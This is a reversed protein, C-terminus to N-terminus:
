LTQTRVRRAYESPTIGFRERFRKTFYSPSNFGVDYAVHSVSGAQADLLQKARSLRITLIFETPTQGTLDKLKRQLQRKEFHMEQAFTDIDLVEDIHKEVVSRAESIFRDDESHVSVERAQLLLERRYREQLLRRVAILNAVRALLEQANFPKYLYDDVRALLGEIKSEESAKATLMIVPIHNLAKDSKVHRCFTHGDMRPMMVDTIILDPMLARAKELGAVGDEAEAVRYTADLCGRVYTRVDAHDEVILVMPKDIMTSPESEDTGAAVHGAEEEMEWGREDVWDVIKTEGEEIDEAGGELIGKEGSFPIRVIFASGFGVESEVRITGGHLEVLEKTLALGIGTGGQVRTPSDDVQHFRDFIATHQEEPIGVGSDKVRIEVWGADDDSAPLTSVTVRVTGPSPTFKIANSLLNAVVKELKDADFSFHIDKIAAGFQLALQKREAYSSFAHVIGKLFPVVNGHRAHLPMRGAELKSLDLLQNILRLLHRASRRMLALQARVPKEVAGYAGGLINELPGLTLTLPTRFEHSINAFFRSKTRDLEELQHAQKELAQYATELEKAKELELEKRENDAQLYNAWAEAADTRLEKELLFTREREKKIVQARQLRAATVIGAILLLAYVAYAWGTRWWPPHITIRLSAGEENWIGDNNSGKVRFVYDGPDLNTYTVLRRTGAEIWDDDFGELMYAYQHKSPNAYDLAAYEFSLYKDAYSLTIEPVGATGLAVTEDLKRVATIVVPPVHLNLRISDPFFANLGNIGGFFLEGRRSKHYARRNFEQSQLGDSVDYNRFTETEPDFQSLGQNTSLWLRGDDDELIGYIVANPLGDAIGYQRFVAPADPTQGPGAVLKNLGRQTGIWLTGAKDAYISLIDNDSLSGPDGPVHRYRVFTETERDFRNLGDRTGVWLAGSRDEGIARVQNHSLNRPNNSNEPDHGYRTIRNTAPDIRALGRNAGIWLTGEHDEYIRWISRWPRTDEAAPLYPTFAARARDFQYLGLGGTGIWLVGQADEYISRVSYHWLSDIGEVYHTFRNAARDFRTLGGHWTGVWLVGARDEFISHVSYDNLSNADNPDHRYLAFRGRGRHYKNLGGGYTGIWLVGSRDEYISTVRNSSLSRPDDRRHTYHAFAGTARDFRNLGGGETGVWLVGARDEYVSQVYDNSLSSADRPDHRYHTVTETARDFAKLGADTTGIWLTGRHDEHISTVHNSGLNNPDDPDNRYVKITGARRDLRYLGGIESGIWLVGADDEYISRVTINNSVPPNDPHDFDRTFPAFSATERDFRNLGDRTGVWLMGTRDEYISTVQDSSLSATNGPDNTFHTFTETARDFRNLGGGDTGVWLMGAQDEYIAHVLNNSLGNPDDPDHRYVTFRYGDYKHLGDQTGIWLFGTRDQFICNVSNQSLGQETTIHEFSLPQQRAHLSGALGTALWLCVFAKYCERM